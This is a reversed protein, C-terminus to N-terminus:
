EAGQTHETPGLIPRAYGGKLELIAWKCPANPKHVM